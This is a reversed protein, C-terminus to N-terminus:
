DGCSTATLETLSALDGPYLNAESPMGTELVWEDWFSELDTGTKEALVDRWEDMSMNGGAYEAQIEQMAAFFADDGILNRLAHVFCRGKLYVGEFISSTARCGHRVAPLGHVDPDDSMMVQPLARRPRRRQARAVLWQSYSAFCENFCIDRWRKISVNDGWWQHGNEHVITGVDAGETYIPRTYTELSFPVDGSVFIGGAQPAPYPGWHEALM